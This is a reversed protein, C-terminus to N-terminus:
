WSGGGGGSYKGGFLGGFIGGEGFVSQATSTVAQVTGSVDIEFGIDVGVGVAAGIDVKFKGDTYGVEAHAGVGVKVAGTVGIDTGLVTAGASGEAKVLNAEASLEAHVENRNIGVEAKAEASIAEVEGKGYVGLMDNNKGLGIRGEAAGSLLAVSAGAGASVGPSFIRKTKGNEDKEYVYFGASADAHAEATAVKYGATGQAYKSKGSAEQEIWTAEAKAEALKQDLITGKKKYFDVDENKQYGDYKTQKKTDLGDNFAKKDKWSGGSLGGGEDEGFLAEALEAAVGAAGTIAGGISKGEVNRLETQSYLRSVSRLGSALAGAKASQKSLQAKKLALTGRIALGGPIRWSLASSISGITDSVTELSAQLRELEQARANLADTDVRIPKM